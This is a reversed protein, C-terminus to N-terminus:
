RISELKTRLETIIRVLDEKSEAQSEAKKAQSDLTGQNKTITGQIKAEQQMLKAQSSENKSVKTRAKTLKDLDKPENTKAFKKEATEVDRLLKTRDTELKGRKARLKDLDTNAKTVSQQSKMVAGETSGLKEAAKDLEKQYRDIQAQVVAKNLRVSLERMWKEQAVTDTQPTSDNVAFALTIRALNAKKETSSEGYVTLPEESISPIRVGVAKAPKSGTITTSVATLDAKWLDLVTSADTEFISITHAPFEKKNVTITSSVVQLDKNWGLSTGDKTVQALLPSTSLAFAALTLLTHNKKM